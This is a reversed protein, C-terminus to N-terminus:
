SVQGPFEPFAGSAWTDVTVTFHVDDMNEQAGEAVSVLALGSLACGEGPFIWEYTFPWPAIGTYTEYCDVSFNSGDDDSSTSVMVAAPVTGENIIGFDIQATYGPYANSIDIDFSHGDGAIPSVTVTAVGPDDQAPVNEAHNFIIDYNGTEVTGNIVLTQQWAAYGIGMAGLALIMILGILGIKKM